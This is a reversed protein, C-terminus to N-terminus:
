YRSICNRKCTIIDVIDLAIQIIQDDKIKSINDQLYKDLSEPYRALFM